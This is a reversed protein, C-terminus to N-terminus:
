NIALLHLVRVWLGHGKSNICHQSALLSLPISKWLFGVYMSMIYLSEEQGM